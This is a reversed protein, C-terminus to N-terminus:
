KGATLKAYNIPNAPATLTFPTDWNEFSILGKNSRLELPYPKGVTSVFLTGGNSTDILAVAPEGDIVTTQGVRLPGHSALLHDVLASLDTLPAFNSFGSSTSSVVFWRGLFLSAATAGAYHVLFNKDGKFYLRQGIRIVDFGLGGTAIHGKGGQGSALSLDLSLSSGNSVGSGKVHCDKATAVAAKVDVLIQAPTRSQEGNPSAALAVSGGALSMAILVSCALTLRM